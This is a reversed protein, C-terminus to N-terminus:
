NQLQLNQHSFYTKNYDLQILPFIPSTLLKWVSNTFNFNYYVYFAHFDKLWLFRMEHFNEHFRIAIKKKNQWEITLKRESAPQDLCSRSKLLLIVEWAHLFLIFYFINSILMYCGYDIFFFFFIHEQKVKRICSLLKSWRDSYM